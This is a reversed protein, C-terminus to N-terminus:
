TSTGKPQGYMTLSENKLEDTLTTSLVAGARDVGHDGHYSYRDRITTTPKRSSPGVYEAAYQIPRTLVSAAIFPLRWPDSPDTSVLLLHTPTPSQDAHRYLNVPRHPRDTMIMAAVIGMGCVGGAGMVLGAIEAYFYIM